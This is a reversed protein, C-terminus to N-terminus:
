HVNAVLDTNSIRANTQEPQAVEPSTPPLAQAEASEAPAPEAVPGPVPVEPVPAAPANGDSPAPPVIGTVGLHSEVERLLALEAEHEVESLYPVKQVLHLLLTILTEM